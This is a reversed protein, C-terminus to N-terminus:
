EVRVGTETYIKGDRLIYIHSDRIFKRVDAANDAASNELGGILNEQYTATYVADETVPAIEPTWGIFEYTYETTAEKVPTLSCEPTQGYAWQKAEIFSGDENVFTILYKDLEFQATFTIDGTVYWQRKKSTYEDSWTAFHHHEDAIAAFNVYEGYVFEASISDQPITDNGMTVKGGEGALITVTYRLQKFRAVIVTDQSVVLTRPNDTVGDSWGIFEYGSWVTVNLLLQDGEYYQGSLSCSGGEEASVRVEYKPLDVVLREFLPTLTMDETVIVTRQLTQVGDSWGLFRCNSEPVATLQVEAGQRVTYTNTKSDHDFYSGNLEVRGANSPTITLKVAPLFIATYATDEDGYIYRGAYILSDSWMYFVYGEDAIAEVNIYDDLEMDRTYTKVTDQLEPLYLWGGETANVTVPRAVMREFQAILSLNSNVIITRNYSEVGDSWGIFRYHEDPYAYVNISYGAPYNGSMDGPWIYGGETASLSIFFTEGTFVQAANQYYLPLQTLNGESYEIMPLLQLIYLGDEEAEYEFTNGVALEEVMLQYSGAISDSQRYVQAWVYPTKAEWAFTVTRGDVTNSLNTILEPANTVRYERTATRWDGIPSLDTPDLPRVQWHFYGNMLATFVYSTDSVVDNKVLYGDCFVNIEYLAKTTNSSWFMNFTLTDKTLTKLDSIEVPSKILMVPEPAITRQEWYLDSSLVSWWITMSDMAEPVLFSYNTGQVYINYMSNECVSDTYLSLTYNEPKDISNWSFDVRGPVSEAQMSQPLVRFDHAVADCKGASLYTSYEFCTDSVVRVANYGRDMAFRLAYETTLFTYTYWCDGEATALVREWNQTNYDYTRFWVGGTTDIGSDPHILVRVTIEHEEAEEVRFTDSASALWYGDRDYVNVYYWYLGAQMVVDTVFMTTSDAMDGYVTNGSEAHMVEVGYSGVEELEIPDWTITFTGNGNDTAQLNQPIFPSPPLIFEEGQSAEGAWGNKYSRVTWTFALSDTNSQRFVFERESGDIWRSDWVMDDRIIEVYFEAPADQTEWTLIAKGTGITANLNFPKYNKRQANCNVVRLEGQYELCIDQNVLVANDYSRDVSVRIAPDTTTWTYTYWGNGEAQAEVVEYESDANLRYLNIVGATDAIMENPQILVRTTITREEAEAPVEFYFTGVGLLDGNATRPAVEVYYTGAYPLLATVASTDSETWIDYYYNHNYSLYYTFHDVQDGAIPDWSITYTGNGNATARINQPKFPTAPMEFAEGEGTQSVRNYDVIPQVRWTFMTPEDMPIYFVVSTDNAYRTYYEWEGNILVSVYYEDAKDQAQWSMTVKPVDVEAKLNVPTYDLLRTDCDAVHLNSTYELCSGETVVLGDSDYDTLGVRAAPDTSLWRFTYWGDDERAATFTEYNYNPLHHYLTIEEAGYYNTNTPQVLLRVVFEREEVPAIEMVATSKGLMNYNRDYCWLNATYTGSCDPMFNLVAKGSSTHTNVNCMLSGDANLIELFANNIREHNFPTWTVTTIGNGDYEVAMDRALFPSPPATFSGYVYMNSWSGGYVDTVGIEWRFTQEEPNSVPLEVRNNWDSMWSSYTGWVYNGATDRVIIAYNTQDVTEFSLVALGSLTDVTINFPMCDLPYYDQGTTFLQQEGERTKNIAMYATESIRYAYNLTVGTENNMVGVRIYEKTLGPLEARYWNKGESILEATNTNDFGENHWQLTYGSASAFDAIQPIYVYISIDRPDLQNANFDAYASGYEQDDADRSSITYVYWAGPELYTTFTRGNVQEDVVNEWTIQSTIYIHFHDIGENGDWAFTYTDDGNDQVTLHSPIYDNGEVTFGNGDAGFYYERDNMYVSVAWSAYEREAGDQTHAVCTYHLGDHTIEGSIGKGNGDPYLAVLGFGDVIIPMDWEFRVSDGGLPTAVLNQPRYNHDPASCDSLRSLGHYTEVSFEVECCFTEDTRSNWEYTRHMGEADTTPANLLFFNYQMAGPEFTAEFHREELATMAQYQRNDYDDGWWCIWMGNSVDMGCDSPVLANVTVAPLTEPDPASGCPSQHNKWYTVEYIYAGPNQYYINSEYAYGNEIWAENGGRYVWCYIDGAQCEWSFTGDNQLQVPKAAVYGNDNPAYDLQIVYWGPFGPVDSMLPCADADSAWNNFEGTFVIPNCVTAEGSFTLCVVVSNEVDYGIESLDYATPTASDAKVAPAAYTSGIVSLVAFLLSLM